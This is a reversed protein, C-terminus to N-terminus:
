PVAIISGGAGVLGLVAGVLLGLALAAAIMFGPDATGTGPLATAPHSSRPNAGSGRPELANRGTSQGHRLHQDRRLLNTRHRHGRRAHPIATLPVQRRRARDRRP